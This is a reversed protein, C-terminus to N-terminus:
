KLQASLFIQVGLQDIGDQVEEINDIHSDEDQLITQLLERTAYDM